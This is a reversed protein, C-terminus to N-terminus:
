KNDNNIKKVLFYQCFNDNFGKKIFEIEFGLKKYFSLAEWFEMTAVSIMNLNHKKAISEAHNMLAKGIGKRRYPKDVWLIDILLSGYFIYAAIGGITEKQKNLVRLLIPAVKAAHSHQQAESTIKELLFNYFNDDKHDEVIAFDTAANILNATLLSM